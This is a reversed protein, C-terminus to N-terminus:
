QHEDTSTAITSSSVVTRIRTDGEMAANVTANQTTSATSSALSSSAAEGLSRVEEVLAQLETQAQGFTSQLREFPSGTDEKQVQATSEEDGGGVYAPPDVFLWVGVVVVFVCITIVIASTHRVHEPKQRLTEIYRFM